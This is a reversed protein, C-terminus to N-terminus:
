GSGDRLPPPVARLAPSSPQQPPRHSPFALFSKIFDASRQLQKGASRPLTIELSCKHCFSVEEREKGWGNGTASGHEAELAAFAM